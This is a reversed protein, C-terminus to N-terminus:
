RELIKLCKISHKEDFQLENDNKNQSLQIFNLKRSQNIQIRQYLYGKFDKRYYERAANLPYLLCLFFNIM